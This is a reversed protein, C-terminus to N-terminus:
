FNFQVATQLRLAERDGGGFREAEFWSAEFAVSYREVPTWWLTAFASQLEKLGPGGGLATQGLNDEIKHYGYALQGRIVDTLQQSIGTAFGWQEIDKGGEWLGASAGVNVGYGTESGGGGANRNKIDRLVGAVRFSYSGQAWRIMALFDPYRENTDVNSGDGIIEPNEVALSYTLNGSKGTYRLGAQRIFPTGVPGGFDVTGPSEALPMFLTWTQGALWGNWEVFAHRMRPNNSNSIAQNGPSGFFDVEFFAKIPGLATDKTATFNFRTQQAHFQFGGEDAQQFLGAGFQNGGGAHNVDYIFDAKVYGGFKLTLDAPVDVGGRKAQAMQAELTAVRAELACADCGGASGAFAPTLLSTGLLAAAGLAGVRMTKKTM